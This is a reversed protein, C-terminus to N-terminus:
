GEPEAVDTAEIGGFRRERGQFRAVAEYFHRRRFDPWLTGPFMLESYASEWLLFNSLRQEGSSRLVLDPDPMDPLYLHARITRETIRGPELRGAAVETGIERVADVIEARGGYNFCFCLTMRRNRRTLEETEEITELVKRPVPRGRRGLFKIRIGKENAEERRSLLIDRNFWILFEVEARPRRWNETSFVFVSLWEIGLDLAGDVVDWLAHEGRRHGENRDLGRRKAWRGNGDLIMAVHRPLRGADIGYRACIEDRDIPAELM